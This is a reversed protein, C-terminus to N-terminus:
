TFILYGVVLLVAGAFLAGAYQQVRGTTTHRLAEGAENTGGAVANIALDIGRQDIGGYVVKSLLRAVGGFANVVADIVYTNTWNTFRAIPGKIPDIVGKMYFDDIYYKHELLPYLVPIRFRDRERQTAADRRWLRTGVAIGTLAVALGIGALAYNIAEFHHDGMEFGRAAVWHTFGEYVGPVNAFGAVISLVGLGILPYTMIKPSEHPHAHGKYEGFFTLYVARAM